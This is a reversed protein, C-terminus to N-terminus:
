PSELSPMGSFRRALRALEDPEADLLFPVEVPLEDEGRWAQRRGSATVSGPRAFGRVRCSSGMFHSRLGNRPTM